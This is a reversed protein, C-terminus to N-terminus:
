FYYHSDTKYDMPMTEEDDDDEDSSYYKPQYKSYTDLQIPEEAYKNLNPLEPDFIHLGPYMKALVRYKAQKMSSLKMREMAHALETKDMMAEISKGLNEIEEFINDSLREM